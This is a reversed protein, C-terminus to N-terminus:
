IFYLGLNNEPYFIDWPQKRSFKSIHFHSISTIRSFNSSSKRFNLPFHHKPHQIIWSVTELTLSYGIDKSRSGIELYIRMLNLPFVFFMKFSSNLCLYRIVNWTSGLELYICSLNNTTAVQLFTQGKITNLQDDLGIMIELVRDIKKKDFVVSFETFFEWCCKVKM